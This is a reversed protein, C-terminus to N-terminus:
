RFRDFEFENRNQPVLNKILYKRVYELLLIRYRLNM